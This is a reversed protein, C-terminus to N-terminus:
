AGAVAFDRRDCCDHHDRVGRDVQPPPFKRIAQSALGHTDQRNILVSDLCDRGCRDFGLHATLSNGSPLIHCDWLFSLFRPFINDIPAPEMSCPLM